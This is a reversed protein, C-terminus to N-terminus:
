KEYRSWFSTKRGHKRRLDELYASHPEINRWDSVSKALRDLKQLYRAGHGYTKTQARRLISDLLARYLVTAALLRGAAEMPEALPLLSGYFDGNLKDRRDLLYADAADLREIEVLFAADTLSLSNDDLIATVEGAIVAEGQDQGVM